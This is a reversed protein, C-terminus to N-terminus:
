DGLYIIESILALYGHHAVFAFKSQNIEKNIIKKTPFVPGSSVDTGIKRWKKYTPCQWLTAQHVTYLDTGLIQVWSGCTGSTSHTFKFVVSGLWGGSCVKLHLCSGVM